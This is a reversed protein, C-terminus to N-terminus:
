YNNEYRAEMKREYRELDKDLQNEAILRLGEVEVDDLINNETILCDPLQTKKEDIETFLKVSAEFNDGDDYFRNDATNKIYPADRHPVFDEVEVVIELVAFKNEDFIQPYALFMLASGTTVEQDPNANFELTIDFNFQM